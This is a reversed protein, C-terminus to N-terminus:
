VGVMFCFICGALWVCHSWTQKTVGRMQELDEIHVGLAFNARGGGREWLMWQTLCWLKETSLLLYNNGASM